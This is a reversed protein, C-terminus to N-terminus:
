ITQWNIWSWGLAILNPYFAFVFFAIVAILETFRIAYVNANWESKGEAAEFIAAATCLYIPAFSAIFAMSWLVYSFMGEGHARHRTFSVIFAVFALYVYSQGLTAVMAATLFRIMSRFSFVRGAECNSPFSKPPWSLGAAILSGPVGAMNLAFLFIKWAGLCLCVILLVILFFTKM